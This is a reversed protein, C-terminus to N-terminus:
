MRCYCNTWTIKGCGSVAKMVAPGTLDAALQAGCMEVIRDVYRMTDSVHDVSNGKDTLFHRFDELHETLTRRGEAAFREQTPDIIGRKRLLVAKEREAAIQRATDADACRVSEKRRRGNEDFYQIEYGPREIIIAKGDKSVRARHRGASDTWIASRRGKREVIEAGEPLARRETRRYITAMLEGKRKEPSGGVIVPHGVLEPQDREEVSAYFADMDCHLIM